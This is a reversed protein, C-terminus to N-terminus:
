APDSAAAAREAFVAMARETLPGPAPLERDDVRHVPQVDRTTSVLFIEEATRLVDMPLDAEAADEVWDLVLARTVGALCGSALPPTLLRGDVGVFVNSGTGECLQGVTNAFLAESAGDASARSLALVNEAYSTSKVGALAGRENRPFPVTIVATSASSPQYPVVALVLTPGRDGRGSGMPAYGGTYTIRLRDYATTENAALTETVAERAAAVDIAPLLLSGASRALRNLHRTLAFPTGDVVKVTEFVGDGVTFAHDFVSITAETDDHLEGNIWIKVDRSERRAL